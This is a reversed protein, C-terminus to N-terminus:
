IEAYINIDTGRVAKIGGWWVCVGKQTHGNEDKVVEPHM